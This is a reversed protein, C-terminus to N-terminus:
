KEEEEKNKHEKQKATQIEKMDGAVDFHVHNLADQTGQFEDNLCCFKLKIRKQDESPLPAGAAVDVM